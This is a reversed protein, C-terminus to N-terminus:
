ASSVGEEGVVKMTVNLINVEGEAGYPYAHAFVLKGKKVHMDNVVPSEFGLTTGGTYDEYQLIEPDWELTATFSGLKESLSSVDITVPIEVSKGVVVQDTSPIASAQIREEGMLATTWLILSLALFWIFINLKM